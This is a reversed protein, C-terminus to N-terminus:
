ITAGSALYRSDHSYAVTNARSGPQQPWCYREKGSALECLSIDRDFGSTAVTRGDPSYALGMITRPKNALLIRPEKNATLDWLCLPDGANASLLAKSEATFALATCGRRLIRMATPIDPRVLRRMEKDAVLDRVQIVGSNRGGFGYVLATVNGKHGTLARAEQGTSVAWLRIFGKYDASALLSGDPSFTLASIQELAIKRICDGSAADYLRLYGTSGGTALLKGDPSFLATEPTGQFESELRRIVKGTAVDWICVEGPYHIRSTVSVARKEDPAFAASGVEAAARLRTTGLRLCAGSPLPDGHGDVREAAVALTTLLPLAFLARLYM